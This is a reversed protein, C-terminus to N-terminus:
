IKKHYQRQIDEAIEESVYQPLTKKGNVFYLRIKRGEIGKGAITSRTKEIDLKKINTWFYVSKKNKMKYSFLVGNDSMGVEIPVVMTMIYIGILCGISVAILIILFLSLSEFNLKNAYILISLYAAFSIGLGIILAIMSIRLNKSFFSNITINFKEEDVIDKM